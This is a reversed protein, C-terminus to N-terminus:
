WTMPPTNTVAYMVTHGLSYRCMIAAFFPACQPRAPVSRAPRWEGARLPPINQDAGSRRQLKLTLHLM